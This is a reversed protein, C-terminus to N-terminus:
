ARAPGGVTLPERVAAVEVAIGTLQLMGSVPDFSGPGSPGLLNVNVGPHAQAHPMGVTTQNGFGHTMAVVGPRLNADFRVPACITGRETTIAALDDAGLGLREAHDPHIWLPNADAGRAKLKEVNQLASNLMHQTRRTILKCQEVPEAQLEAFLEHGRRLTTRMGDPVCEIPASLRLQSVSTGPEVDPLVAIGDGARLQGISVGVSSLGGDYVLPLPDPLSADLAVPRGVAALLEALFRWEERQEAEPETVKDTWQVYPTTQVGQVFINLDEREFQDTAPLVYDALEGTANRYLDITVLLDLAGLAQQLRASDGISLAPNGAVVILARLPEEDDQILDALLAAPMMGVTPRYAGWKTEVFSAETRDVPTPAIPLGRGAFYNGGPRDLNGTLLSLMQALWYGLAGQRGMNLGTSVHISAGNATAFAHALEAIQEAPIGVIPAIAAPSYPRVFARVDDIGVVDGDLAGLSFGVTRDIEHLMAALLYPDTDPRVQLTDGINPEIRLPNVFVVRGGRDRIDRLARVPDAVSLFSTKSVRPNAGIVLLLETREIDAIPNAQPVGYLLEATAYKNSCDQSASSFVRDSGLTRIFQICGAGAMANFANPNGLYLGVARPGHEDVLARLQTAIEETAEDWTIDVFANGAQEADRRQPHRLRAPDRHVDAAVLGNSCAFGQTVPHEHDPRLDVLSGADDVHAVLGCGVECLRCFTRTTTTV